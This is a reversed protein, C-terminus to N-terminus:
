YRERSRFRCPRWCTSRAAFSEVSGIGSCDRGWCPPSIGTAIGLCHQAIIALDIGRVGAVKECGALFMPYLLPRFGHLQHLDDGALLMKAVAVYYKEDLTPTAFFPSRAHEVLYGARVILGLLALWVLWDKFVKASIDRGLAPAADISNDLEM